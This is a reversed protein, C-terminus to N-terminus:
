LFSLTRLVAAELCQVALALAELYDEVVLDAELGALFAM